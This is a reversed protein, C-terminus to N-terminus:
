RRPQPYKRNEIKWKGNEMKWKGNEMKWKGDWAWAWAWDWDSSLKYKMLYSFILNLFLNKTKIFFPLKNVKDQTKISVCQVWKIPSLLMMGHALDGPVLHNLTFRLACRKPKIYCEIDMQSERPGLLIDLGNIGM